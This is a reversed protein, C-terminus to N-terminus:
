LGLYLFSAMQKRMALIHSLIFMGNFSNSIMKDFSPCYIKKQQKLYHGPDNDTM